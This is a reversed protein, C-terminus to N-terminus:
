CLSERRTCAPCFWDTIVYVEVPSSKNGFIPDEQKIEGGEALVEDPKAVGVFAIAFGLIFISLTSLGKWLYPMTLGRKQQQYSDIMKLVFETALILGLLRTFSRHIPM